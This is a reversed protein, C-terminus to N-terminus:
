ERPEVQELVTLHVVTREYDILAAVAEPAVVARNVADGAFARIADMSAWRTVVTFEVVGDVDRSSLTAGLFGPLGRLEGAVHERFYEPYVDRRAAHAVAHWVRLIM